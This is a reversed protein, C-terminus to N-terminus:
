KNEWRQIALSLSSFFGYTCLVVVVGVADVGKLVFGFLGITIGVCFFVHHRKECTYYLLLIIINAFTRHLCYLVAGVGAGAGAAGPVLVAVVNYRCVKLMCTCFGSYLSKNQKLFNMFWPRGPWFCVCVRVCVPFFLYAFSIMRVYFQAVRLILQSFFPAVMM